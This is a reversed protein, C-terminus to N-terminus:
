LRRPAPPRQSGHSQTLLSSSHLACASSPTNLTPFTCQAAATRVHSNIAWHNVLRGPHQRAVPRDVLTAQGFPVDCLCHVMRRYGCLSYLKDCYENCSKQLLSWRPAQLYLFVRFSLVCCVCKDCCVTRCIHPVQAVACYTHLTPLRSVEM